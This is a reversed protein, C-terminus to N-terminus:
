IALISPMIRDLNVHLMLNSINFKDTATITKTCLTRFHDSRAYGRISWINLLSQKVTKRAPFSRENVIGIRRLSQLVIRSSLPSSSFCNRCSYQGPRAVASDTYSGSLVAAAAHLPSVSHLASVTTNKSCQRQNEFNSCVRRRRRVVFSGCVLSGAATSLVSM